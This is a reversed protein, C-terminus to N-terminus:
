SARRIPVPSVAALVAISVFPNTACYGNVKPVDGKTVAITIPVIYVGPVLPAIITVTLAVSVILAIVVIIPIM